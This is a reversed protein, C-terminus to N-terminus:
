KLELLVGGNPLAVERVVRGSGKIKPTIGRSKLVEMARSLPLDILSQPAAPLPRNPNFLYGTIPPLAPKEIATPLVSLLPLVEQAIERFVPAATLGGYYVAGQPEDLGVFVVLRPEDLPAFGIFSSFYKGSMYGRGSSSAKQATGTKGGAVYGDLAAKPATGHVDVVGRMIDRMQRSTEPKLVPRMPPSGYRVKQGSDADIHGSVLRPTFLKGGNVAAVMARTMQMPTVSIGQGFSRNALGVRQYHTIDPIRGGSEFKLEIGTPKGFGFNLLYPEQRERGVKLGIKAAGVNSSKQLIQTVSLLRFRDKKNHTVDRIVRDGVMFVGGEVDFITEPKVDGIDLAASITFVKFTSGPEYTDKIVRNRREEADSAQMDNPNFSPQNVLALVDGNQPDMVVVMGAKSQTKNI